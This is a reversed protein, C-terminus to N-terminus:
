RTSRESVWRAVTAQLVPLTVAGDGLVVDHFAKVDFRAGLKQEADRRLKQIELSGTMYSTAQGPVALYRDIETELYARSEATHEVMYTIAQDRSWGLVHLGPDVVLRAARFAQGSLMGLRDVDSSYLGMEDALREAYLGWGEATSSVYIYRLVPHVGKGFLAVSMQLHHGPYSEHFATSEIGVRSITEPKYTGLEYTGPRKGDQSGAAYFGGGSAKQYAPFPKVILKADPVFGVWNRTKSEARDVAARAYALVDAETRFTFQRDTRLRELLAKIDTTKFQDRAIGATEAEIRAMERTGTDHIAKPDISLSTHFRVSAAYCTAGDPNASVGVADRGRYGKALFDRYRRIAPNIEATVLAAVTKSFAADKARTAPDHFPSAEPAANLMDDVQRIVARVNTAPVLYGAAMGARVNATETDIYAPVARLRTLATAREADTAVPQQAFTSSLMSQWGTWTPSVNWLETRCVRRAVSAELRDRTFAYPIAADTGELQAADIKGLSALWADERARWATMAAVSRDGLKDMPTDPYGVEYADEPFQHYYGDVFEQAVARARSPADNAQRAPAQGCAVVVVALGALILTRENTM